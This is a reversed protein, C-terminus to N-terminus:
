SGSPLSSRRNQQTRIKKVPSEKVPSTDIHRAGRKRKIKRTRSITSTDVTSKKTKDEKQNIQKKIVKQSARVAKIIKKEPQKNESPELTESPYKQEPQGLESIDGVVRIIYMESEELTFEESLTEVKTENRSSSPKNVGSNKSKTQNKKGKLESKFMRISKEHEERQRKM